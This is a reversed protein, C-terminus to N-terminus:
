AAYQIADAQDAKELEFVQMGSDTTRNADRHHFNFLQNGTRQRPYSLM